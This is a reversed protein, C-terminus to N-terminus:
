FFDDSEELIGGARDATGAARKQMTGWGEHMMSVLGGTRSGSGIALGRIPGLIVAM